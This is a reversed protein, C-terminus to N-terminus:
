DPHRSGALREFALMAAGIIGADNGLTAREIRVNEGPIRYARKRVEDRTTQAMLDYGASVGGGVVFLPVNLVNLISAIMMGLYRAARHFVEQAVADGSTAAEYVMKPTLREPRGGALELLKVGPTDPTLAERAMRVLATGSAYQEVCGWSGCGCPHGEPEVIVHGIEGAMGWAGRWLKGELIVAGGIGTGLTIFVMSDVDHGTGHIFEGLGAVNADNEITVPLGTKERLPGCLDVDYWGPFNPSQSILGSDPYIGGPCGIGVGVLDSDGAQRSLDAVVDGLRAIVATPSLDAGTPVNVTDGLKGNRDVLAGKINTGGLDIAIARGTM